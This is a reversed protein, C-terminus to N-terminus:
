YGIVYIFMYTWNQTWTVHCVGDVVSFTVSSGYWPNNMKDAGNSTSICLINASTLSPSLLFTRGEGFGLSM